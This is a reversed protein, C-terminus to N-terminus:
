GCVSVCVFACMCVHQTHVHLSTFVSVYVVPMRARLCLCYVCIFIYVLVICYILRECVQESLRIQQMGM